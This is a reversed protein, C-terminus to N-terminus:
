IFGPCSRVVELAGGPLTIRIGDQFAPIGSMQLMSTAATTTIRQFPDHLWETAYNWIPLMFVLYLIPILLKKLYERGLVLLVISLITAIASGLQVNM